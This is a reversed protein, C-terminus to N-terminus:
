ASREKKDNKPLVLNGKIKQYTTIEGTERHQVVFEDPTDKCILYMRTDLNLKGLMGRQTRNPKFGQKM